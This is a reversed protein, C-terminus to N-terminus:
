HDGGRGARNSHLFIPSLIAAVWAAVLLPVYHSLALHWSDCNPCAMQVVVAALFLASSGCFLGVRLPDLPGLRRLYL